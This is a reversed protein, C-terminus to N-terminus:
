LLEKCQEILDKFNEYFADRMEETPFNLFKQSRMKAVAIFEGVDVMICYKLQNLNKWDPKWPENLGMGEGAIKWYADRCRKLVIFKGYLNEEEDDLGAFSIIGGYGLLECCEM